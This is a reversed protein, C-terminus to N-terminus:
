DGRAPRVHFGIEGALALIRGTDSRRVIVVHLNDDLGNRWELLAWPPDCAELEGDLWAFYESARLKRDSDRQPFPMLPEAFEDSILEHLEDIKDGILFFDCLTLEVALQGVDECELELMWDEPERIMAELKASLDRAQDEELTRGSLLTIFETYM